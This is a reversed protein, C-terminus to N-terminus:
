EIEWTIGSGYIEETINKIGNPQIEWYDEVIDKSTNNDKKYNNFVSKSILIPAYIRTRKKKEFSKIKNFQEIFVWTGDSSHILEAFDEASYEYRKQRNVFQKLISNFVSEEKFVEFYTEEIEKNAMDTLRSAINAPYGVWILNKFNANEDDKKETGVKIVRMEGFDVGIGCKFNVGIFIRNIEEAIHNITVACHVAMTCCNESPFVVMVRDGIINRVKAGYYDAIRLVSKTFATYIKGMTNFQHKEVLKVSDRIDVYLVCTKIIKGKKNKGSEYTLNPDTKYASPVENTPVFEFDMTRCDTITKLLEEMLNKIAM